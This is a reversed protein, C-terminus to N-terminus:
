ANAKSSAEADKLEEAIKKADGLVVKFQFGQHKQMGVFSHWPQISITRKRAKLALMVEDHAWTLEDIFRSFSRGSRRAHERERAIRQENDPIRSKLRVAIDVDGLECVDKLYSGFVVVDTVEYLFKPNDNVEKVRAVFDRLAKEATRRAVRRAGSARVLSSGLDTLQFTPEGEVEGVPAIYGEQILDRISQEAQSASLNLYEMMWKKGFADQHWGKVHRFFRRIEFAPLGAIVHKRQVHITMDNIDQRCKIAPFALGEAILVNWFRNGLATGPFMPDM